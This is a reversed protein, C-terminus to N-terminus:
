HANEKIDKPPANQELFAKEEAELEFSINPSIKESFKKRYKRSFIYKLLEM